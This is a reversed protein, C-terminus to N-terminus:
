EAEWCHSLIFDALIAEDDFAGIEVLAIGLV